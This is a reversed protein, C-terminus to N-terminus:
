IRVELFYINVHSLQKIFAPQRSTAHIPHVPRKAKYRVKKEALFEKM